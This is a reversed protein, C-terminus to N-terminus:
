ANMWTFIPNTKELAKKIKIYQKGVAYHIKQSNCNPCKEHPKYHGKWANGCQSCTQIDHKHTM